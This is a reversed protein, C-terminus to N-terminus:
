VLGMGSSGKVLERDLASEGERSHVSIWYSNSLDLLPVELRADAEGVTLGLVTRRLPYPIKEPEM